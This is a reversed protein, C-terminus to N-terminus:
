YPFKAINKIIELPLEVSLINYKISLQYYNFKQGNFLEYLDKNLTLQNNLKYVSGEQINFNITSYFNNLKEKYIQFKFQLTDWIKNQIM